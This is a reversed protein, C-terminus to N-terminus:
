IENLCWFDEYFNGFSHKISKSLEYGHTKLLSSIESSQTGRMNDEHREVQINLFKRARLSKTAGRLVQLEFGEVDIKLLDITSLSNKLIFQDLTEIQVQTENFMKKENLLLISKKLKFYSSTTEPYIMTSTEDLASEYFKVIGSKEGFGFNYLHVNEIMAFGKELNRYTKEAPEFALITSNKFIKRFIKISQGRNAGIDLILTSDRKSAIKRLEEFLKPEYFIKELIGTVNTIFRIYHRHAKEILEFRM